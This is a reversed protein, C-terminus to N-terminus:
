SSKCLRKMGGVELSLFASLDQGADAWFPDEPESPGGISSSTDRRGAMENNGHDLLISVAQAKGSKTATAHLLAAECIGRFDEAFSTLTYTPSHVDSELCRCSLCCSNFSLSCLKRPHLYAFVHAHRLEHM